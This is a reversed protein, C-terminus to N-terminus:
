MKKALKHLVKGSGNITGMDDNEDIKMMLKM